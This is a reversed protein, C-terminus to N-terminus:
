HGHMGRAILEHHVPHHDGLAMVGIFGLGRVRAVARADGPTASVVRVTAGGPVPTSTMRLDGGASIVAAHATTMRRIAEITRGEGTVDAEFGGPIPMAAVASRLTVDDMDRLHARLAELDVMSWDTSPDAELRGVIEAIASFAAQGGEAPPAMTAEGHVMIPTHQHAQAALPPLALLLCATLRQVRMPLTRDPHAPAATM